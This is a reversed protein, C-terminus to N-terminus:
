NPCQILRMIRNIQLNQVFQAFSPCVWLLTKKPNHKPEYIGPSEMLMAHIENIYRTDYFLLM